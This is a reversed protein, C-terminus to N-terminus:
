FAAWVDNFGHGKRIKGFVGRINYMKRGIKKLVIIFDLVYINIKIKAETIISLTSLGVCVLRM